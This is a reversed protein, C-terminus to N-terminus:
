SVKAKDGLERIMRELLESRSVRIAKAHEGLAEWATQTLNIRRPEKLEDWHVPVGKTRRMKPEEIPTTSM